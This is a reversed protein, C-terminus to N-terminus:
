EGPPCCSPAPGGRFIQNVVILVDGLSVEGDCDIDARWNDVPAPGGRYLFDIFSIVDGINVRGDDNFDGCTVNYGLDSLARRFATINAPSEMLSLPFNFVVVAYDDGTYRYGNVQRHLVSDPYMSVYTYLTDIDGDIPFLCGSLPIGGVNPLTSVVLKASDATLAPYSGNESECGTLDGYLAGGSFVMKNALASDLRFVDHFYSGNDYRGMQMFQRSITFTTANPVIFLAKGGYKLYMSIEDLKQGDFKGGEKENDFVVVEYQSLLGLTIPTQDVHAYDIEVSSEVSEYLRHVYDPRFADIASGPNSNLDYFLVRHELDQPLTAVIESADSVVGAETVSVIYYRYYVGSSVSEDRYYLIATSDFLSFEGGDQSRYIYYAHLCTDCNPEWSLVPEFGDTEISVNGPPQPKGAVCSTYFSRLSERGYIDVATVSFFIENGPHIVTFTYTTDEILGIQARHWVNDYDPVRVHVYYGVTNTDGKANWALNIRSEDFSSVHLGVPPGPRPLTYGSAYLSDAKRHQRLMNGFDLTEIYADPTSPDYLNYYDAANRHFNETGIIAFVVKETDGPLLDFPGLSLLFRADSDTLESPFQAPIWGSSSDITAITLQNFDIEPHALMYYVDEQRRPQGLSSDAFTRFPDEPTGLRRPGYSQNAASTVWWNYNFVPDSFTASLIGLSVALRASANNWDFDNIFDPDGDNDSAYPIVVRSSPDGDYLLTDLVGTFDDLYGNTSSGGTATSYIDADMYFGIWGGTIEASRINEITLEVIVINDYSTDAWSFSRQIVRLGLPVHSTDDYQNPFGIYAPDTVTDTYVARFEDDAYTGTRIVAGSDPYEPQLETSQYTSIDFAQSVLTDAGVIGGILLGTHYISRISTAERFTGTTSSSGTEPDSIGAAAPAPFRGNDVMLSWRGSNHLGYPRLQGPPIITEDEAWVQLAMGPCLGLFVWLAAFICVATYQRGTITKDSFRVPLM